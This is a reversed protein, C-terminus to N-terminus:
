LVNAVKGAGQQLAQDHEVSQELLADRDLDQFADGGPFV